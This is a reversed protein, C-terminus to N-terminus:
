SLHGQHIEQKVGMSGAKNCTPCKVKVPENDNQVDSNLEEPAIHAEELIEEFTGEPLLDRLSM